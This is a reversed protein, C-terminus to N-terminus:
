GVADGSPEREVALVGVSPRSKRDRKGDPRISKIRAV